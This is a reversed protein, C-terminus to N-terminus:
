TWTALKQLPRTVHEAPDRGALWVEADLLVEREGTRGVGL